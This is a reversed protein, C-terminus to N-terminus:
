ACPVTTGKNLKNAAMQMPTANNDMNAIHHGVRHCFDDGYLVEGLEEKVIHLLCALLWGVQGNSVGSTNLNDSSTIAHFSMTKQLLAFYEAAHCMELFAIMRSSAKCLHTLGGCFMDSRFPISENKSCSLSNAQFDFKPVCPFTDTWLMTRELTHHCSQHLVVHVEQGVGKLYHAFCATYGLLMQAESISQGILGIPGHKTFLFM